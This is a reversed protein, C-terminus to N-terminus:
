RGLAELIAEHVAPRAILLDPSYPDDAGFPIPSGDLRTARAGAAM